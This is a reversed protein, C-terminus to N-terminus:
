FKYGVGASLTFVKTKDKVKVLGKKANVLGFGLDAQAKISIHDDIMHEVGIGPVLYPVPFSYSKNWTGPTAGARSPTISAEIKSFALDLGLRGYVLTTEKIIGGIKIAPTIVFRRSLKYNLAVNDTLQANVGYDSNFGALSSANVGWDALTRTASKKVKTSDYAAALELGLYFSNSFVFGHSLTLRLNAGNGKTKAISSINTGKLLDNNIKFNMNTWGATAGVSTGAFNNAALSSNGAVSAALLLGTLYLSKKM